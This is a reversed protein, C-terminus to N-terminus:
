NVLQSPPTPKQSLMMIFIGTNIDSGEPVKDSSVSDKETTAQVVLCKHRLQCNTLLNPPEFRKIPSLEVHFTIDHFFFCYKLKSNYNQMTDIHYIISILMLNIYKNWMKVNWLNMSYHLGIRILQISLALCKLVGATVKGASKIFSSTKFTSDKFIKKCLM